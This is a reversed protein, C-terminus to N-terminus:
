EANEKLAEDIMARWVEVDRPHNLQNAAAVMAETPERLAAIAIRARELWEIDSDRWFNDDWAITPGVHANWMVRAVREVMESM